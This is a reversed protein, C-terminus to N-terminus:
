NTITFIYEYFNDLIKIVEGRKIAQKPKFTGDPNGQVLGLAKAKLVATYFTPAITEHDIFKENSIELDDPVITMKEALNVVYYVIKERSPFQNPQMTEEGYIGLANAVKLNETYWQNEYSESLDIASTDVLDKNQLGIRMLLSIIESEKIPRNPEFNNGDVGNVIGFAAFKEVTAKAWHDKLDEFTKSENEVKLRQYIFNNEKLQEKLLQKEEVPAEPSENADEEATNETGSSGGSTDNSNTQKANKENLAKIKEQALETDDMMGYEILAMRDKFSWTKLKLINEEIDELAIGNDELKNLEATSLYSDFVKSFNEITKDSDLAGMLISQYFDREQAEYKKIQDFFSDMYKIEIKESFGVTSGILLFILILTTVIKKM